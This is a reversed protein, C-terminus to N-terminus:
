GGSWQQSRDLDLSKSRAGREYVQGFLSVLHVTGAANDTISLSGTRVGAQTPTFTVNVNTASGPAITIPLTRTSFAFDGANGGAIALTSIVLDATGPNVVTVRTPASKTNLFQNAFTVSAPSMSIGPASQSVPNAAPLSSGTPGANGGGCAVLWYFLAFSLFCYLAHSRHANM